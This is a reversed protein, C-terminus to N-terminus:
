AGFVREFVRLYNGGLITALSPEDYGRDLLEATLNPLHSVDELGRPLRNTGDFDSGYGVHDPGVLQVAHDIHDAVRRCDGPDSGEVPRYDGPDDGMFADVFSIGFVGGGEALARIQEDTLNRRHDFLARCNGHTFLVPHTSLELVEFFGPQNLHSLDLAMGLRNMERVLARGFESLGGRGHEEVIGDAAENRHNWVPQLVRVGLRHLVRLMALEGHLPEAGEVNLVVALRDEAQCRRVDAASLALHARGGSAEIQGLLGDLQQLVRRAAVPYYVPDPWATQVTAALGGERARPFDLHGQDSREVLSRKGELVGLISDAHGDVVPHRRHLALAEAFRPHRETM